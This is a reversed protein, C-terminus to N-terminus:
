ADAELIHCYGHCDAPDLDRTRRALVELQARTQELEAIRREVEALREDVLQTVHACPQAGGDRIDLVQRIQRLTFGASQADRIFALRDVADAHYNRYGASTRRPPPLLGEVEYFRVTTAKIGATAALEGIRM